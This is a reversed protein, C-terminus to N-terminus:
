CRGEDVLLSDKVSVVVGGVSWAALGKGEAMGFGTLVDDDKLWARSSVSEPGGLVLLILVAGSFVLRSWAM